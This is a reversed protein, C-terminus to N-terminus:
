KEWIGDPYESKLTKLNERIYCAVPDQKNNEFGRETWLWFFYSAPVDQMLVGKHKGWPMQHLDTLKSM